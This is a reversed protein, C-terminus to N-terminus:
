RAMCDVLPEVSIVASTVTWRERPEDPLDDNPSYQDRGFGWLIRLPVGVAFTASLYKDPSNAARGAYHAGGSIRQVTKHAADLYYVSGSKTKIVLTSTSM